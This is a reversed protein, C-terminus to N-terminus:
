PLFGQPPLCALSWWPPQVGCRSLTALVHQRYAALAAPQRRLHADLRETIRALRAILPTLGALAAYHRLRVAIATLLSQPQTSLGGALSGAHWRYWTRAEPLFRLRLDPRAHLLRTYLAWDYAPLTPDIADLLPLAAALRLASNGLGICNGCLLDQWTLGPDIGTRGARVGRVTDPRGPAPRAAGPMPAGAGEAGGARAASVAGQEAQHDLRAAAAIEQVTQLRWAPLDALFPAVLGPDGPLGPGATQDTFPRLDNIVVDAEALAAQVQVVRDGGLLDDADAFLVADFGREALARMGQARNGGPPGHVPLVLLRDGLGPFHSRIDGLGDDVVLLPWDGAAQQVAAVFAPLHRRAAPYVTTMVALHTM